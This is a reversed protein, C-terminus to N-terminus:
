SRVQWERPGELKWFFTGDGNNRYLKNSGFNTVYLDLHGDNNYDGVACGSSWSTDGLHAKETVDSFTGDGNNRLLYDHPRGDGSETKRSSGNVLYIDQDGDNDYDFFAAGTGNVDILYETLEGGCTVKFAVGAQKAIDSFVPLAKEVADAGLMGYQALQASAMLVVLFILRRWFGRFM